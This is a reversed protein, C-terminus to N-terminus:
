AFFLIEYKLVSDNLFKQFSNSQLTIKETFILFIDFWNLSNIILCISKLFIKSTKLFQFVKKEHSKLYVETM